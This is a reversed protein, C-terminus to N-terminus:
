VEKKAGAEMKLGIGEFLYFIALGWWLTYIVYFILSGTLIGAYSSASRADIGYYNYSLEVAKKNVEEVCSAEKFMNQRKLDREVEKLLSWWSFMAEKESFGYKESLEKGQNKFMADSDKLALLLLMGLSGKLELNGEKGRVEIETGGILKEVKTSISADKLKVMAEFSTNQMGEAKKMLDNIYYISGKSISNFLHDAASLANRGSFIPSFMLFLVFFFSFILVIGMVFHRKEKVIM